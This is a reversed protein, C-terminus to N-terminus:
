PVAGNWASTNGTEFGDTFISSGVTIRVQFGTATQGLVSVTIANAPDVFTEGTRWMVGENDSYNAPPSDADVVWAPELRGTLVEHIIVVRTGPGGGPIAAEYNGVRERVEVTYFHSSSGAIPIKAMRYVSTSARGLPDVDVTFVGDGTVVFREGSAFWGLLDKHYSTVHKGLRGYTADNVAYGTASSMVDWPSDYPDNDGDSNNAHPLGFGHGMEHAIVAEDQFAWPPDWTTRWSKSVGDLTAFHSGGWACCDLLENFMLNIGEFGGTGGLSFDVFPDAAATCDDFLANLNASVGFGPTPVYFSQPHPLTKWDVAASGVVDIAGYSVERWYHDLRGPANAYMGTFFALNKPENAVDSFKCALTVWPKSGTVASQVPTSEAELRIATVAAAGGVAQPSDLTIVVERGNLLTLGGARAVLGDPITLDLVSGDATTLRYRLEAPGGSGPAPDGWLVSLRGELSSQAHVPPAVGAVMALLTLVLALPRLVKPSAPATM